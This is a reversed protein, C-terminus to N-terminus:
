FYVATNDITLILKQMEKENVKFPRFRGVNNLLGIALLNVVLSSGGYSILPLTIGTIPMIGVAVGINVLAQIAIMATIGVAILRGFPDTNNQAIEVGCAIILGYLFIVIVCGLFGFQHAILSFIFDNHREPLFKPYKLFPGKGFGQGFLGGSAIALKSRVLQYGQANQWNKLTQRDLGLLNALWPKQKAKSMLWTDSGDIKNQLLVASIRMRQYEQMQWWLFPFALGALLIIMALHKGRAGALFLMSFLVPMLLMVTGLDPELLILIMPLLTLAFPGILSRFRSFNSRYRLYWALALIYVLKFFESPQIQVPLPSLDIWCRASNRVPVFPLNVFKDLLLVALVILMFIYLPFSMAGLRRYNVFNIAIFGALGAAAFVIQKKWLSVFKTPPSGDAPKALSYLMLLGILVLAATAALLLLRVFIQRGHFFKM